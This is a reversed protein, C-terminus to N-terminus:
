GLRKSPISPNLVTELFIEAAAVWHLNPPKTTLLLLRADPDTALTAMTGGTNDRVHELARKRVNIFHRGVKIVEDSKWFVYVGARTILPDTSSAAEGVRLTTASFKNGLPAFEAAFVRRIALSSDYDEKQERLDREERSLYRQQEGDYGTSPDYQGTADLYAKGTMAGPLDRLQLSIPKPILEHTREYERQAEM